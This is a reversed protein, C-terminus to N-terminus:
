CIKAGDCFCSCSIHVEKNCEAECGFESCLCIQCKCNLVNVLKDLKAAFREKDKIRGNGESFHVAQEWLCKLKKMVTMEHNLITFKFKPNANAWQGALVSFMMTVLEDVPINRKDRDSM